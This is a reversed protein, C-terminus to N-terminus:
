KTNAQLGQLEKLMERIQQSRTMLMYYIVCWCVNATVIGIILFIVYFVYACNMRSSSFNKYASIGVLHGGISFVELVIVTIGIGILAGKAANSTDSCLTNDTTITSSIINCGTNQFLSTATAALIVFILGTIIAVVGVCIGCYNLSSFNDVTRIKEKIEEIRKSSRASSKGRLNGAQLPQNTTSQFSDNISNDFSQDQKLLRHGNQHHHSNDAQHNSHGGGLHHSHGSQHSRHEILIPHQRQHPHQEGHHHYESQLPRDKHQLHHGTQQLTQHTFHSRSPQSIHLDHSYQSM